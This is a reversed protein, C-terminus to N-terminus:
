WWIQLLRNAMRSSSRACEEPSEGRVLEATQKQLLFKLGKQELSKQLLRAHRNM